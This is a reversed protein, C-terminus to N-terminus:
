GHGKLTLILLWGAANVVFALILPTIDVSAVRPVTKQLPALPVATLKVVAQSIPNYYDAKAVQLLFRLVIIFVYLQVILQIISSTPDQGM